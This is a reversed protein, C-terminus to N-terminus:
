STKECSEIFAAWLELAQRREPIEERVDYVAEMGRLKHNLAIESIERSVGMNRMHGKATSRTDHPTFYRVPIGKRNIARSISAWLTTNGVHIDGHRRIRPKSRAPLLWESHTAAALLESMWKAVTPTLPVLFGTRTKVDEDPVWWTGRQLDIHEKRAKILEVSRVCTALLIRLALANHRGMEDDAHVLVTQIESEGLMVRKKIPPRAGMLSELKIGACPNAAILRKGCAHDFLRSASTLIRESVTWSRKSQEIMHVIDTATVNRVQMAGIRRKVVKQLDSKRRYITGEALLPVVLKKETYDDILDRVLWAAVSRAKDAQKQAAPDEGADIGARHARALKRAAALTLDPYNGLTLEKRRGAGMRYRLVWSSTGAKSLTFTLGDGDSKAVPEGKAIWNRIQIDDLMHIQKSM